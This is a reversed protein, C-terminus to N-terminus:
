RRGRKPSPKSMREVILDAVRQALREEASESTPEPKGDVAELAERAIAIVATSAHAQPCGAVEELAKHMTACDRLLMPMAWRARCIFDADAEKAVRVILGYGCSGTISWPTDDPRPPMARALYWAGETAADASKRLGDLCEGKKGTACM